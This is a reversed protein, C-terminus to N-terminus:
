QYIVLRTITKKPTKEYSAASIVNHVSKLQENPL